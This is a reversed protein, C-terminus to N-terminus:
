IDSEEGAPVFDLHCTPPDALNKKGLIHRIVFHFSFIYAAWRAQRDSLNQSSMFYRLNAHDSMVLVPNRTDILWARWEVFAQVIAGLEQNHVQWSIKNNTWKRSLFLVPHIKGNPGEQSLVASCAYKSSNVYVIRPKAFDFHVLLPAKCFCDKLSRFPQVSEAKKLGAIVDVKSKTLDTLPTAV